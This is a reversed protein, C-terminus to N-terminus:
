RPGGEAADPRPRPTTQLEVRAMPNERSEILLAINAEIRRAADEFGAARTHRAQIRLIDLHLSANIEQTKALLALREAGTAALAKAHLQQAAKRTAEIQADIEAQMASVVEADLKVPLPSTMESQPALAEPPPTSSAREAAFTSTAFLLIGACLLLSRM